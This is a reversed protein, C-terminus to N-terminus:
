YRYIFSYMDYKNKQISTVENLSKKRSGGM